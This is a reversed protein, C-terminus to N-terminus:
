YRKGLKAHPFSAEGHVTKKTAVVQDIEREHMAAHWEEYGVERIGKGEYEDEDLGWMELLANNAFQFRYNLDFIYVLDPTSSIIAEYLREQRSFKDTVNRLAAQAKKQETIDRTICQSHIFEGDKWYGESNLLVHRISGDKHRLQVEYEKIAEGNSLKKLLDDLVQQDAHYDAIHSGVFEERTYGLMNLVTQNARKVIGDSGTQHLGVSANDFFDVLEEENKRLQEELKKQHTFDLLM